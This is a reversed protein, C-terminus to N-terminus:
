IRTSRRTGSKRRATWSTTSLFAGETLVLGQTTLPSTWDATNKWVRTSWPGCRTRRPSTADCPSRKAERTRSRSCRRLAAPFMPWGARRCPSSRTAWSYTWSMWTPRITPTPAGWSLLEPFGHSHPFMNPTSFGAAALEEWTTQGPYDPPWMWTTEGYYAGPIVEEDMRHVHEMPIRRGMVALRDREAPTPGPLLHRKKLTTCIYRDYRGM